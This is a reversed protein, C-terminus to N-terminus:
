KGTSLDQGRFLRTMDRMMVMGRARQAASARAGMTTDLIGFFEGLEEGTPQRNPDRMREGNRAASERAEKLRADDSLERPSGSMTEMMKTFDVFTKELFEKRGDSPVNTYDKAYMDWADVALRSANEEVQERASGALGVAFAGLLASDGGKLNKMRGILKGMLELRKEVPLKNFEDSLLTYTFVDDLRDADYDPQPM